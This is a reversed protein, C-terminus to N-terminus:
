EVKGYTRNKKHQNNIDLLFWDLEFNNYIYEILEIQTNSIM